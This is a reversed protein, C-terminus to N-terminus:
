LFFAAVGGGAAAGAVGAAVVVVVVASPVCVVVLAVRISVVICFDFKECCVTGDVAKRTGVPNL